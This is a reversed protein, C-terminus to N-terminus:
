FGLSPDVYDRLTLPDMFILLNRLPHLSIFETLHLPPCFSLCREPRAKEKCNGPFSLHCLSLGSRPHWEPEPPGTTDLGKEMRVGWGKGLAEGSRVSVETKGGSEWLDKYGM